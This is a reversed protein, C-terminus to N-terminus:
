QKMIKNCKNMHFKDLGYINEGSTEAVCLIFSKNPKIQAEVVCFIISNAPRSLIIFSSHISSLISNVDVWAEFAFWLWFLILYCFLWHCWHVVILTRGQNSCQNPFIRVCFQIFIFVNILFFYVSCGGWMKQIKMINLRYLCLLVKRMNKWLRRM